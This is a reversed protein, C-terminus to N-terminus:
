DCKGDNFRKHPLMGEPSAITILQMTRLDLSAIRSKLALLLGGERRIALSGVMEPMTWAEVRANTFDYRCVSPRQIDVWYLAQAAQDWVPAEGLINRLDTVRTIPVM